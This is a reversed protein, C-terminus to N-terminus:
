YHIWPLMIICSREGMLVDGLDDKELLPDVGNFAFDMWPSEPPLRFDDEFAHAVTLGCYLDDHESTRLRVFGGITAKRSISTPCVSRPVSREMIHISRGCVDNTNPASFFVFESDAATLAGPPQIRGLSTPSHSSSALLVGQYRTLIGSRRVLNLCRDRALESECSLVLTPSAEQEVKGVMFTGFTISFPISVNNHLYDAHQDLLDKVGRLLGQSIRFALGAVEWCKQIGLSCCPLGISAEPYPWRSQASPTSGSAQPHQPSESVLSDKLDPWTSTNTSPTTSNM